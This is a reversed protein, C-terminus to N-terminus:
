VTPPLVLGVSQFKLEIPIGGVEDKPKVIGKSDFAILYNLCQYVYVPPINIQHSVHDRTYMRDIGDSTSFLLMIVFFHMFSHTCSDAFISFDSGTLLAIAYARVVTHYFLALYLLVWRLRLESTLNHLSQASYLAAVFASEYTGGLLATDARTIPNDYPFSATSALRVFYDVSKDPMLGAALVLKSRADAMLFLRVGLETSFVLGLLISIADDTTTMVNADETETRDGLLRFLRVTGLTIFGCIISLCLPVLFISQAINQKAPEDRQTTHLVWKSAQLNTASRQKKVKTFM